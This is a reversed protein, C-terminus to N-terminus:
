NGFVDANNELERQRKFRLWQFTLDEGGVVKFCNNFLIIKVDVLEDRQEKLNEVQFKTEKPADFDEINAYRYVGLQEDFIQGLWNLSLEKILFDRVDDLSFDQM